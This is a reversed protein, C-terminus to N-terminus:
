VRILYKGAPTKKIIEVVITSLVLTAIWLIVIEVITGKDVVKGVLSLIKPHIIYIGLTLSALRTILEETKRCDIRLLFTFFLIVWVMEFIDDYFYEAHLLGTSTEHILMRGAYNQFTMLLVTYILLVIGHVRFSIFKIETSAKRCIFGGLVFYFVWTWLRFTQIVNKQIPQGMCYSIIEIGISVIGATILVLRQWKQNLRTVIPLLCYLILLAGLYWFQWMQGKQVLSKIIEEVVAVIGITITEGFAMQAAFKLMCFIVNWLVVLRLIKICKKTTYRVDIPGRNLLFYGSTMFFFPIAFGCLYYLTSASLMNGNQLKTSHLGVVAVCALIRILDISTNRRSDTQRDILNDTYGENM